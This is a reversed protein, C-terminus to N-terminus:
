SSHLSISILVSKIRIGHEADLRSMITKWETICEVNFYQRLIDRLKDTDVAMAWIPCSKLRISNSLGTARIQLHFALRPLTTPPPIALHLSSVSHAGSRRLDIVIVIVVVVIFFRTVTWISEGPNGYQNKGGPNRNHSVRPKEGEGEVEGQGEMGMGMSMGGDGNMNINSSEAHGLEVGIEHLGALHDHYSSTAHSHSHGTQNPDMELHQNHQQHNHLSQHVHHQEHMQHHHQQDYADQDHQLHQQQQHDQEQQQQHHQQLHDQLGQEHGASHEVAHLGLDPVGGTHDQDDVVGLPDHEHEITYANHAGTEPDLHVGGLTPDVLEHHQHQQQHHHHNHAHQHHHHDQLVSPDELYVQEM